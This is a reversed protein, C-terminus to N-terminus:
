RLSREGLANISRTHELIKKKISAMEIEAEEPNFIDQEVLSKMEEINARLRKFEMQHYELQNQTSGSGPASGSEVATVSVRNVEESEVVIPQIGKADKRKTISEQKSATYEMRTQNQDGMGGISAGVMEQAVYSQEQFSRAVRNDSNKKNVIDRKADNMEAAGITFTHAGAFFPM